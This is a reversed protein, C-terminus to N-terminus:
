SSQAAESAARLTARLIETTRGYHQMLRDLAEDADRDIAAEAIGEHETKWDRHGSSGIAAVSRYRNIRDHLQGCFQLVTKSPSAGLLAMHFLKHMREWDPNSRTAGHEDPIMRPLRRLRHTILVIRDEWAQDGREISERLAHAELMCRTQHLDDYEELSVQSVRFGRKDLREVLGDSTLLSLAERIPTAGVAILDRLQEVKLRQGPVLVGSIIREHLRTYARITLSQNADDDLPTAIEFSQVPM